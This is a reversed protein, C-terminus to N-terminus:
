EKSKNVTNSENNVPKSENNVPKSEDNVPKSENNLPISEANSEITKESKHFPPIPALLPPTSSKSTESANAAKPESSLSEAKSLSQQQRPEIPRPVFRKKDRDFSKSSSEKFQNHKELNNLIKGIQSAKAQLRSVMEGKQTLEM